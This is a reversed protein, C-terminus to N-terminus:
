YNLHQMELICVNQNKLENSIQWALIKEQMMTLSLSIRPFTRTKEELALGLSSAVTVDRNM